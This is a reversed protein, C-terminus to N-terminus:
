VEGWRRIYVYEHVVLWLVLGNCVMVGWVGWSFYELLQVLQQLLLVGFVGMGVPYAWLRDRLVHYAVFLKTVGHVLLFVAIGRLGEPVGYSWGARVWALVGTDGQLLQLVYMRLVAASVLCRVAGMCIECVGLLAKAYLSVRFIRRFRAHAATTVGMLM